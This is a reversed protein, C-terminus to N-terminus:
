FTVGLIIMILIDEKIIRRYTSDKLKDKLDEQSYLSPQYKREVQEPM